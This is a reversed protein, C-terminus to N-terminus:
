LRARRAADLCLAASVSVNLSEFDRVMPLKFSGDCRKLVGPRLGAGESGLVLVVPESLDLNDLGAPAHADAAFVWRGAAKLEDLARSLNTVSAIPLLSAAGAASRECAPTVPAASRKPIVVGAGGLAYTSRIIAGLNGPDSVGDLAIIPGDEELLRKLPAYPFPAVELAVGQHRGGDSRRDLERKGAPRRKLGMRKADDILDQHRPNEGQIILLKGRGSAIADRVAHIGFVIESM